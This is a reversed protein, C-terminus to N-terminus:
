FIVNITINLKQKSTMNKNTTTVEFIGQLIAICLHVYSLHNVTLIINKNTNNNHNNNNNKGNNYTYLLDIKM